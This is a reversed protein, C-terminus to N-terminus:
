FIGRTVFTFCCWWLPLGAQRRLPLRLLEWQGRLSHTRLFVKRLRQRLAARVAEAGYGHQQLTASTQLLIRGIAEYEGHTLTAGALLQPWTEISEFPSGSCRTLLEAQAEAMKRVQLAHSRGSISQQHARYRVLVEDLIAFRARGILDFWLACDHAAELEARYRLPTPAELLRRRLMVSSQCFACGCFHLYSVIGEHDHPVIPAPKFRKDNFIEYETGLCSVEPHEDLYAVQKALREPLSIDDADMFAVFEGRAVDLARNRAAAAGSQATMRLYRVRADEYSDILERVYPESCDDVVILEFDRLSQLLISEVAARLYVVPTNYVPMVVSCRPQPETSHISLKTEATIQISM